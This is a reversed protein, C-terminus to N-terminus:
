KGVWKEESHDRSIAVTLARPPVTMEFTVSVDGPTRRIFLFDISSLTGFLCWGVIEGLTMYGRINM